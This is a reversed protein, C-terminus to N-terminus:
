EVSHHPMCFYPFHYTLIHHSLQRFRGRKRLSYCIPWHCHSCHPRDKIEQLKNTSRGHLQLPRDRHFMEFLYMIEARMKQGENQSFYLKRESFADILYGEKQKHHQEKRVRFVALVQHNKASTKAAIKLLSPSTM